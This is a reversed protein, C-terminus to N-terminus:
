RGFAKPATATAIAVPAAAPSVAGAVRGALRRDVIGHIVDCAAIIGPEALRYLVTTGARRSDVLGAARMVALHQSANPLAVGIADALEGVSRDGMRLADLLMLRKPDTLVKCVDAHLRYRELDQDSITMAETRYAKNCGQALLLDYVLPPPSGDGSGPAALWSWPTSRGPEM